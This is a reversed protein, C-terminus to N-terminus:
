KQPHRLRALLQQLDEHREIPLTVILNGAFARIGGDSGGADRWITPEITEQILKVLNDSADQVTAATGFCLNSQTTTPKAPKDQPPNTRAIAEAVIDRVDYVRTVVDRELDDATSVIVIGDKIRYALKITGGSLEALVQNLIVRAPLQQLNLTIPCDPPFGAAELARWNVAMNVNTSQAIFALLKDLRGGKIEVKALINDLKQRTPDPQTTPYINGSSPDAELVQRISIPQPIPTPKPTFLATAIVASIGTITGIILDRM